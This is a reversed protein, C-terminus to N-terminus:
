EKGRGLGRVEWLFSAVARNRGEGVDGMQKSVKVNVRTIPEEQDLVLTAEQLGGDEMVDVLHVAIEQM